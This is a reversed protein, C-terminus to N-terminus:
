YQHSPWSYKRPISEQSSSETDDNADQNEFGNKRSGNTLFCKRTFQSGGRHLGYGDDDFSLDDISKSYIREPQESENTGIIEISDIADLSKQLRMALKNKSPKSTIYIVDQESLEQDGIADLSQEISKYFKLDFNFKAKPATFEQFQIKKKPDNSNKRANSSSPKPVIRRQDSKPLLLQHNDFDAKSLKKFRGKIKKVENSSGANVFSFCGVSAGPESDESDDDHEMSETSHNQSSTAISSIKRSEDLGEKKTLDREYYISHYNTNTYHHSNLSSASTVSDCSATVSNGLLINDTSTSTTSSRSKNDLNPASKVLNNLRETPRFAPLFARERQQSM